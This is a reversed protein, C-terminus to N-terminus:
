LDHRAIGRHTHQAMGADRGEVISPADSLLDPDDRAVRDGADVLDRVPIGLERGVPGAGAGGQRPPQSV